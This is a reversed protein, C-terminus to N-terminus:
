SMLFLSPIYSPYGQKEREEREKKREKKGEKKKNSHTHSHKPAKGQSNAWPLFPIPLLPDQNARTDADCDKTNM